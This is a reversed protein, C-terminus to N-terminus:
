SSRPASADAWWASVGELALSGPTTERCVVRTPVQPIVDFVIEFWQAGSSFAILTSELENEITLGGSRIGAPTRVHVNLERVDRPPTAEFAFELFLNEPRSCGFVNGSRQYADLALVHEDRLRATSVPWEGLYADLDLPVVGNDYEGAPLAAGERVPVLDVGYVSVAVQGDIGRSTIEATIDDHTLTDDWAVTGLLVRTITSVDASYNWSATGGGAVAVDVQAQNPDSDGSDVATLYLYVRATRDSLGGVGFVNKGRWRAVKGKTSLIKRPDYDNLLAGARQEYLGNLARALPRRGRQATVGTAMPVQDAVEVNPTEVVVPPQLTSAGGFYPLERAM